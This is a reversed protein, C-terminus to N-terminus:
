FTKGTLYDISIITQNYNDLVELYNERIALARTMSQIFDLYDMAGSKYSKTTQDIIMDAEPLAQKEYYDVSTSYKTFEDLL